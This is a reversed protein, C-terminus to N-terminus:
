GEMFLNARLSKCVGRAHVTATFLGAEVVSGRGVVKGFGMDEATGAKVSESAQVSKVISYQAVARKVTLM